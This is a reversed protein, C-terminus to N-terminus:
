GWDGDEIQEFDELAARLGTAEGASMWGALERVVQKRDEKLGLKADIADLIVATKTTGTKRAVENIREEKDAPIRLSIAM